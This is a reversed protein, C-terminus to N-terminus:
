KVNQMTKAVGYVYTIDPRLEPDPNICLDVLKRLHDSYHDAPLPPYDCQEIKKCLSYLNMKDGYFPSQLAAMQQTRPFLGSSSFPRAPRRGLIAASEAPRVPLTHGGSRAQPGSNGVSTRRDCFTYRATNNVYKFGASTSTPRSEEGAASFGRASAGAGRGCTQAEVCSFTVPKTMCLTRGDTRDINHRPAVRTEM